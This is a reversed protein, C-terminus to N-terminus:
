GMQSQPVATNEVLILVLVVLLLIIILTTADIGGRHGGAQVADIRTALQHVQDDSLTSLKALAEDSSLGYDALRQRIVETELTKQLAAMDTTRDAPQADQLPRIASSLYM